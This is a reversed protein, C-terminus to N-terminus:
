LTKSRVLKTCSESSLHRVALSRRKSLDAKWKENSSDRKRVHSSDGRFNANKAFASVKRTDEPAQRCRIKDLRISQHSGM